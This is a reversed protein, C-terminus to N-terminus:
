FLPGLVDARVEQKNLATIIPKFVAETQEATM